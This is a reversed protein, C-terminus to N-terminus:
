YTMRANTSTGPPTGPSTVNPVRASCGGMRHDRAFSAQDHALGHSTYSPQKPVQWSSHSAPNRPRSDLGRTKTDPGRSRLIEVLAFCALPMLAFDPSPRVVLLRASRKEALDRVPATPLMVGGCARGQAQGVAPDPPSRPRERIRMPHLDHGGGALEPGGDGGQERRAAVRLPAPALVPALRARVPRVRRRRLVPGVELREDSRVRRRPEDRQPVPRRDAPDPQPRALVERPQPARPRDGLQRAIGDPHDVAEDNRLARPARAHRARQELSRDVYARSCPAAIM